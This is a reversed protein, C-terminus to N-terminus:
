RDAVEIAISAHERVAPVVDVVEGAVGRELFDAVQQPVPTQRRAGLEAIQLRLQARAPRQRFGHQPQQTRQRGAVAHVDEARQRRRKAVVVRVGRVVRRVGVVALRHPQRRLKARQDGRHPPHLLAPRRQMRVRNEAVGGVKEVHEGALPRAVRANSTASTSCASWSSLADVNAARTAAAVSVSMWEAITAAIAASLPGSWPPAFASTMRISRSMPGPTGTSFASSTTRALSARLSFIGPKPWRTYWVSSGRAVCRRCIDRSRPCRALWGIQNSM